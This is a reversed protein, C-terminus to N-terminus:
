DISAVFYSPGVGSALVAWGDVTNNSAYGAVGYRSRQGYVRLFITALRNRPWDTDVWPRKKGKRLEGAVTRRRKGKWLQTSREFVQDDDLAGCVM